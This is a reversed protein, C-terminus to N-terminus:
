GSIRGRYSVVRGLGIKTGQSQPNKNGTVRVALKHLGDALGTLWVATSQNARAWQKPLYMDRKGVSKGDLIIELIGMDYRLDGQVYIANGTFEVELMDGAHEAYRLSEYGKGPMSWNGKWVLRSDTVNWKDVPELSPFSVETEGKFEFSQVNIILNDGSEAGGNALVNAIALRLCERSASEISYDTFDFKTNMYPALDAKLKEPLRTFGLLAGLVGAANGPNCDSDQGARTSIEATRELNGDGYLLGLAIYAGNLKASINFKEKAGWPCLDRNWKKELEQWTAKWDHPHRQYWRLVDSIVQGYGSEPPLSALGLEVVRKPDTEVFTAAYMSSVFVGGYFGDGYNMLHGARDAIRYASQPLGPSVLGIFDCEIQFDIDDAHPNYLPHGSKEPPIGALLNQRGQGNAHWLLFGGHAFEKAFASAPADLGHVVLAKLLAMNVYLDDQSPLDKLGEPQLMLPGEYIKGQYRFETPGGLAVGYAKGVWGGRIKDLLAERSITMRRESGDASIAFLLLLPFCFGPTRM